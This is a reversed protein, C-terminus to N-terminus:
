RLEFGDKVEEIGPLFFEIIHRKGTKVEAQATMGPSIPMDQNDVKLTDQEPKVKIKYVYGQKEDQIADPSINIIESPIVGYKQFPFTDLKIDVKQGVHVFGIDESVLPREQQTM